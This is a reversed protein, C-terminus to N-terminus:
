AAPFLHPSSKAAHELSVVFQELSNFKLSATLILYRPLDPLADAGFGFRIDPDLPLNWRWSAIPNVEGKRRAEAAEHRLKARDRSAQNFVLTAPPEDDRDPACSVIFMFLEDRKENNQTGYCYRVRCDILHRLRELLPRRALEADIKKLIEKLRIGDRLPVGTLAYGPGLAKQLAEVRPQCFSKQREKVTERPMYQLTVVEPRILLLKSARTSAAQLAAKFTPQAQDYRGYLVELRVKEGEEAEKEALKQGYRELADRTVSGKFSSGIFNRCPSENIDDATPLVYEEKLEKSRFFVIQGQNGKAHNASLRVSYLGSRPAKVLQGIAGCKTKVPDDKRRAITTSQAREKFQDLIARAVAGQAANADDQLAVEAVILEAEAVAHYISTIEEDHYGDEKSHWWVYEAHRKIITDKSNVVRCASHLEVSVCALKSLTADGGYRFILLMAEEDRVIHSFADAPQAREVAAKTNAGRLITLTHASVCALKSVAGAGGAFRSILAGMADTQLVTDLAPAAAAHAAPPQSM